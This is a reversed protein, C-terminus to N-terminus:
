SMLFRFFVLQILSSENLSFASTASRFLYKNRQNKIHFYINAFVDSVVLNYKLRRLYQLRTVLVMVLNCYGPLFQSYAVTFM